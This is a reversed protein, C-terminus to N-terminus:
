LRTEPVAPLNKVMQAVLFPMQDQCGLPLSTGAAPVPCQVSGPLAPVPCLLWAAPGPQALLAPQGAAASTPGHPPPSDAGPSTPLHHIHGPSPLSLGPRWPTFPASFYRPYNKGLESSHKRQKKIIYNLGNAKITDM